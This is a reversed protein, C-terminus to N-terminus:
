DKYFNPDVELLKQKRQDSMKGIKIRKRQTEVWAGLHEGEYDTRRAICPSGNERAYRRYQELRRNWESELPDFSFGIDLLKQRQYDSINKRERQKQCWIGLPLGKYEDRKPIDVNGVEEKYECLIQYMTNWQQAFQGNCIPCVAGMHYYRPLYETIQGCPHHLIKIKTDQDFFEGVLEYEGDTTYRIREALYETTMNKPFCVRCQPSKLFKRYRVDFTHGCTNSHIKCLKEGGNFELLEYDGVSEIAERAREFTIVSECLCRVGEFIFSRPKISIIQGCSKHLLSVNKDLSKFKSKLEYGAGEFIKEAIREEPKGKNCFHCGFKHDYAYPTTIYSKGCDPCTYEKLLAESSRKHVEAILKESDPFLFMLLPVLEEATVNEASIMKVRLFQEIDCDILSWYQWKSISDIFSGYGEKATYGYSHLEDYLIEKLVKINCSKVSNFLSVSYATFAINAGMDRKTDISVYDDSRYECAHGKPGIYRKLLCQHKHCTQVGSLQHCRHLYAEGYKEIDERVCEPCVCPVQILGNSSTNLANKPAFVNNILKTQQGKTMFISEYEVTSTSLYLGIIDPKKLLNNYLPVFEARIDYPLSAINANTSGLYANAFDKALLGNASTLRHVWSYLLEDPYTPKLVAIFGM